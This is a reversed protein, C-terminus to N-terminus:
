KAPTIWRELGARYQERTLSQVRDIIYNPNASIWGGRGDPRIVHMTAGGRFNCHFYWWSDLLQLRLGALYLRKPNKPDSVVRAEIEFLDTPEKVPASM